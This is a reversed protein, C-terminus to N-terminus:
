SAPEYRVSSREKLYIMEDRSSGKERHNHKCNMRSILRILASDIIM